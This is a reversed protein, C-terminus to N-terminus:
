MIIVIIKFIIIKTCCGSTFYQMRIHFIKGLYYVAIRELLM